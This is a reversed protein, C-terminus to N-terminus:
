SFTVSTPRLRLISAAIKSVGGVVANVDRRLSPVGTCQPRTTRLTAALWFPV